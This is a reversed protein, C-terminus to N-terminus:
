GEADAGVVAAVAALGDVGVEDAVQLFAVDPLGPAPRVPLVVLGGHLRAVVVDDLFVREVVPVLGRFEVQEVFQPPEDREFDVQEGRGLLGDSPGAGAVPPGSADVVPRHGRPFSEFPEVVLVTDVAAVPEDKGAPELFSEAGVHCVQVPCECADRTDM